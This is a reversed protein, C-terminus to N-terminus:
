SLRRAKRQAKIQSIVISLERKDDPGIDSRENKAFLAFLFVPLTEDYFYTIVRTGGRKGMGGRAWRVKRAGGTGEIVDGAEPNQAIYDIFEDYEERTWLKEAKRSFVTTECVTIM